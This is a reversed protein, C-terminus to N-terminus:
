EFPVYQIFCVIYLIDYPIHRKWKCFYSIINKIRKKCSVYECEYFAFMINAFNCAFTVWLLSIRTKHVCRACCELFHCPPLNIPCMTTKEHDVHSPIFFKAVPYQSRMRFSCAADKYIIVWMIINKRRYHIYYDVFGVTKNSCCM